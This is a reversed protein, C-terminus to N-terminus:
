VFELDGILFALFSSRATPQNRRNLETKPKQSKPNSESKPSPFQIRFKGHRCFLCLGCSHGAFRQRLGIADCDDANLFETDTSSSRDILSPRHPAPNVCRSEAPADGAFAFRIEKQSPL